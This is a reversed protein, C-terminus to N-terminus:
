IVALQGSLTLNEFDGGDLHPVALHHGLAAFREAFFCAKGSAPSSAFGHLYIFQPATM